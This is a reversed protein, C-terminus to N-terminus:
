CSCPCSWRAAHRRRGVGRGRATGASAPADLTALFPAYQAMGLRWDALDASTTVGTEVQVTDVDVSEFGAARALEALREPHDMPHDAKMALYWGPTQYGYRGAVEDVAAKAPHDSDGAFSGSLLATAVRRAERLAPEPHELHSFCFATAALDFARDSFPLATADGVVPSM